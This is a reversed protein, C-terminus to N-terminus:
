ETADAATSSQREVLKLCARSGDPPNALRRALVSPLRLRQGTTYVRGAAGRPWRFFARPSIECLLTDNVIDM